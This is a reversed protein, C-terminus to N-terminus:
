ANGNLPSKVLATGHKKLLNQQKQIYGTATISGPPPSGSELMILETNIGYKM